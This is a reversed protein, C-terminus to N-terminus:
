TISRMSVFSASSWQVRRKIFEIIGHGELADKAVEVEGAALRIRANGLLQAVGIAEQGFAANLLGM